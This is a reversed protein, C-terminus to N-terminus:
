EVFRVDKSLLVSIVMLGEFGLGCKEGWENMDVEFIIVLLEKWMECVM